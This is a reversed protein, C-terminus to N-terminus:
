QSGMCVSPLRAQLFLSRRWLFRASLLVGSIFMRPCDNYRRNRPKKFCCGALADILVRGFGVSWQAGLKRDIALSTVERECILSALLLSGLTYRRQEPGGGPFNFYNGAIIERAVVGTASALKEV